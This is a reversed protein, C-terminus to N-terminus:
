GRSGVLGLAVHLYSGEEVRSIPIQAQIGDRDCPHENLQRESSSGTASQRLHVYSDSRESIEERASTDSLSSPPFRREPKEVLTEILEARRSNM